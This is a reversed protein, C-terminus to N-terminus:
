GDSPVAEDLAKTAVKTVFVTVVVTVVLGGYFLIKEGTTKETGTGSFLSAISQVLTGLYVYMVTGPMMGIWSALVYDRFSVKTLGYAYNLLNFPFVPSLRTLFVIKFGEKAVAGDIATFKVNGAIKKEIAERAVYRGVLFALAAGTTSALSIIIAGRVLGFMLGGALTVLSGPIFLVCCLIYIASYIIAGWPGLDKIWVLVDQLHTQINFVKASVLLGAVIVAAIILKTKGGSPSPEQQLSQSNDDSM